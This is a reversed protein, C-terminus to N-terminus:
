IQLCFKFFIAFRQLADSGTGSVELIPGVWNRPGYISRLKTVNEYYMVNECYM